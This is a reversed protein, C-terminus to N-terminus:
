KAKKSFTKKSNILDIAEDLVSTLSILEEEKKVLSDSFLNKIETVMMGVTRKDENSLSSMSKLIESLDSKKGTIEKRVEELEM